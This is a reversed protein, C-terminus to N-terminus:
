WGEAPRRGEARSSSRFRADPGEWIQGDVAVIRFTEGQGLEPDDDDFCAAFWGDIEEDGDSIRLTVPDWRAFASPLVPYPGLDSAEEMASAFDIV